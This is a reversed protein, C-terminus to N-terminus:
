AVVFPSLIREKRARTTPIAGGGGKRAEMYQRYAPNNKLVGNIRIFRKPRPVNHDVMEAAETVSYCHPTIAAASIYNRPPAGTVDAVVLKGYNRTERFGGTSNGSNETKSKRNLKLGGMSGCITTSGGLVDLSTEISGILRHKGSKEWDYVEILLPASADGDETLKGLGIEATEWDPNLNNDIHESRYALHWDLGVGEHAKTSIEFFPDSKGLMGEVNKLKRGQLRLRVTGQIAKVVRCVLTGGSRLPKARINGRACLVDGLDFMVSGMSINDGKRVEDYIDVNIWSVETTKLEAM